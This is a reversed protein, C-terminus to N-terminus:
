MRMVQGHRCSNRGRRHDLLMARLQPVRDVMITLLELSTPDIWHVDEFVILLPRRAAQREFLGMLASLIKEKHKQPNLDPLSYGVDRPLSLLSALIAIAEQGDNGSPAVLSKLKEFKVSPSDSREFGAAREIQSIFPFCLATPTIRPVIIVFHSILNM